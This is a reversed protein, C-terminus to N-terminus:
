YKKAPASEQTTIPQGHAVQNVVTPTKEAGTITDVLECSLPGSNPQRHPNMKPAKPQGAPAATVNPNALPARPSNPLPPRPLPPRM